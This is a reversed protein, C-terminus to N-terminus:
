MMFYVIKKYFQILINVKQHYIAYNQKKKLSSKSDLLIKVLKARPSDNCFMCVVTEQDIIHNQMMTTWSM